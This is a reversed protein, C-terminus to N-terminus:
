DILEAFEFGFKQEFRSDAERNVEDEQDEDINDYGYEDMIQLKIKERESEYFENNM